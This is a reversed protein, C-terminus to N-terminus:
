VESLCWLVGELVGVRVEEVGFCGWCGTRCGSVGKDYGM